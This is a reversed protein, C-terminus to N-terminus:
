LVPLEPEYSGLADYIVQHIRERIRLNFLKRNDARPYIRNSLFIYVLGQDPDAWVCTGTFGTHGYAQLSINEPFNRKALTEKGPKDFGLGRHNGHSASTFLRITEPKLYQEGGYTGGNLLLQFLVALDEATSFLGAHAAVGGLLAASEDHVYGHVLQRRWRQDNQTPVIREQPFHELPKFLTHRLGLPGYFQRYALSDLSDGGKVELVRQILAMNADSYRFRTSRAPLNEMDRWIKDYYRRDFYFDKAVPISFTDNQVRCFYRSCDANEVDRYLLYPVVPLHPQVGSQHSLLRRITHSRVRARRDLALHQRLRDNLGFGGQEYLEMAVMATTAVKTISAVDYISGSSVRHEDEYTHQGFVANYIVTGGKAVLVQCGPFVNDNIATGVIADIGVLRESAVGEQEPLGYRLRLRPTEHGQGRRYQENLSFPLQGSASLGGFILQAALAQVEAEDSFAQIAVLSTDLLALNGPRGLNVFIMGGADCAWDLLTEALMTDLPFDHLVVVPSATNMAAALDAKSDFALSFEQSRFDAYKGFAEDFAAGSQTGLHYIDFRQGETHRLPLRGAPNAALVLSEENLRRQWYRWRADQFYHRLKDHGALAAPLEEAPTESAFVPLPLVQMQQVPAPAALLTDPPPNQLWQKALLIRRLREHLDQERLLGKRYADKLFSIIFVPSSPVVILDVEMELIATAQSPHQLEASLLGDFRLEERFFRGVETPLVQETAYLAPAIRFGSVGADILLRYAAALSDLRASTDRRLLAIAAFADAQSLMQRENLQAVTWAHAEIAPILAEPQQEWPSLYPVPLLNLGLAQAQSLMAQEMKARLSDSSLARLADWPPLPLADSFLNNLLLGPPPVWFLPVAALAQLSDRLALFRDLPLDRLQLGGARGSAVWQLAQEDPEGRRALIILQGLKEDLSMQQIQAEVAARDGLLFPATGPLPPSPQEPKRWCSAIAALVALSIAIAVTRKIMASTRIQEHTSL